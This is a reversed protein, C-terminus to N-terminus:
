NQTIIVRKGNVTIRGKRPSGPNAGVNYQVTANGNGTAASTITLWPVHSQVRWGCSATSAVINFSGTGGGTGITGGTPSVTITCPEPLPTDQSVIFPKGAIVLTGRRPNPGPNAEVIYQVSGSGNGSSGGTITLWPANSEATWSCGRSVDVNVNQAGGGASMVQNLPTLAAISLCSTITDTDTTSNNGPTPDTVGGPATVTATNTLIRSEGVALTCVGTYTVSGAPPLTITDNINGSGSATCVGGGAGVCTWTCTLNAPFTDVVTAGTGSSPGANAAVITYTVSQGQVVTTVGDTKTISLDAQATLTDTDTASNSGPNPDTAASSVTATNSLSGTASASITCTATYTVSGGSPLDVTDNINGSSSATCSGGGAGVCTWTCTLVAPFTDAVTAEAV